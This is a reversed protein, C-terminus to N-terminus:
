HALAGAPQQKGKRGRPAPDAEIDDQTVEPPALLIDIERSKLKALKGFTSESVDSSEVNFKLTCSGGEKPTIRWGSLKCDAIDLNSRKGGICLDVTLGYGTAEASWRLVGVKAGIGSLMPMDSVADVGELTPQKAGGNGTKQFLFGKLYGDFMALADNSVSMEIVLKVGPSEDPQRNKQSLVVINVLKAKTATGLEFM